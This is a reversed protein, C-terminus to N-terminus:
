ITSLPFIRNFLCWILLILLFIIWIIFINENELVSYIIYEPYHTPITGVRTHHIPEIISSDIVSPSYSDVGSPFYAQVLQAPENLEGLEIDGRRILLNEPARVYKNIMKVAVYTGAISSVTITSIIWILDTHSM